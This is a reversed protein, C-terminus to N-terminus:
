TSGHLPVTEEESEDEEEQVEVQWLSNYGLSKWLVNMMSPPRLLGKADRWYGGLQVLQFQLPIGCLYLAEAEELTLLRYTKAKM